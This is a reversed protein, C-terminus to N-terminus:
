TRTRGPEPQQPARAQSNPFRSSSPQAQGGDRFPPVVCTRAVRNALDSGHDSRILHLCVDLGSAAGASTLLDGDEVFLVDPDLQVAPFMDRFKEALRWHTTAPRGDLMGAAALAFAGTCISVIRTGPRIQRLAGALETPLESSILSLDFPPIVVTDASSLLEPGHDASIMFDADSRVPKGDATCTTIEYRSEASGFVRQPIGLEFPYVGDLALVAVRHM